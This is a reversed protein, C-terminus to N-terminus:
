LDMAELITIENYLPNVKGLRVSVEQGPHTREGFIKRKGRVTIQVNPLNITVFNDNEETIIADWWKKDGCQRVYSLRWYRPRFRQVQGVADLRMNLGMLMQQLTEADYRPKGHTLIHVIQAENVLDPYRRLPSTIPAYASLALGAHPKAQTELSSPILARIIRAMDQPKHWLGAYERPIAVDQTRYLLAVEREQGWTAIAASALIMMEAVLMQAQPSPAINEITVTTEASEGQLTIKNDPNDMIVAGDAIRKQQRLKSLKNGLELQATYASAPNEASVTGNLVAECDEYSLNAKLRVWEISPECFVIQGQEDVDCVICLAPRIENAVLSLTDTGLSEPLMHYTAEPLYLSTARRLVAKNLSNNSADDFPWVLAPCALALHLRLIGGEKEEVYFADDIDRTTASDISIFPLELSTKKVKKVANVIDQVAEVHEEVWAESPDYDARDLWFNYHLPLIGWAMALQLPLHQVDPLGKVLMSFTSSDESNEPDAIRKRLLIELYELVEASPWKSDGAPPLTAKKNWVDWLIRFFAAGGSILSERKRTEEQAFLRQEVVEQSYIEFHPPHFKFHSKCQLLVQGYAAITDVDPSEEFLEAFWQATGQEVEGEALEWINLADINAALNQRREKHEQLAKILSDRSDQMNQLIPGSWPLLRNANMRTERRNPLLLRLKGAQEEVVLAIQPANAEMYEVICGLGPYNILTMLILYCYVAYFVIIQQGAIHFKNSKFQM